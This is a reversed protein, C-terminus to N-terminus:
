GDHLVFSSKITNDASRQARRVKVANIVFTQNLVDRLSKSLNSMEDFDTCSKQWIWEYIQKARFAQEDMAVLHDRLQELTLKRIDIKSNSASVTCLYLKKVPIKERYKAFCWFFRM